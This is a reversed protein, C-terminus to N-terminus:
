SHKMRESRAHSRLAWIAGFLLLISLVLFLFTVGRFGFLFSAQMVEKAHPILQPSIKGLLASFHQSSSLAGTALSYLQSGTPKLGTISLIVASIQKLMLHHFVAGGVAVSLVGFINIVTMAAGAVAAVHDSSVQSVAIPNGSGNALGWAMGFLVLSLVIFLVSSQSSFFTFLFFAVIVLALVLIAIPKPGRKDLWLGGIYPMIFTMLTMPLLLLGLQDVSFARITHLYLPMIFIVFIAFSVAAVNLVSGLMFHPSAIYKFPILPSVARKEVCFFAIIGILGVSLSAIIRGSKWGYVPAQTIGYVLCTLLVILTAMGIWDIEVKKMTSSEAVWIICAILSIIIVPINFFFVWRWGLLSSIVGGVVPGIALGIGVLATYIAIARGQEEKPFIQTTLAMGCPFIPAAFLGQLCRCAILQGSIQTLGALLSAIGFGIVGVYLLRRHGYADGLKGMAVLWSCFFLGFATIMWQLQAISSGLAKQIVPLIISVVNFDVGIILGSIGLGILAGYKKPGQIM